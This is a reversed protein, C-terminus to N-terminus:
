CSAGLEQIRVNRVEVRMPAGRHLQIAIIGTLARNDRVAVTTANNLKLEMRAGCALVEIDNWDGRRVLSKGKEWGEGPTAMLGRGRGREEYFNGWASREGDDSFDAQYGAVVWGPGDQRASRFQIGSNGNRLKVAAKLHFNGFPRGYILFTNQEIANGDTSGVIAGDEV